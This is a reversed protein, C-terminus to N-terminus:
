DGSSGFEVQITAHEIGFREQLQNQISTIFKLDTQETTALHVTLAADTTGLAWIHLDHVDSVDPLKRLFGRVEEIDINEPVADLALNVSDILLNYLSYLIVAIIAFSVLSDILQIGTVAIILGAIVVGFSVLADAVFHIFASRINLDYKKEKMFLWATFANVGIGITAVIIVNKANIGADPYRLRHITQFVIFAVAVLLLITNLLAILITSRRFGYTFKLTPKRQSLIVAIWSFALALVDSLNHGADAVLAMSNSLFGFLAEIVIFIINIIIGTKFANGLNINRSNSHDYEMKEPQLKL